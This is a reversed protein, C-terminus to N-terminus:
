TFKADNCGLIGRCFGIYIYTYIYIYGDGGLQASDRHTVDACLQSKLFKSLLSEFTDSSFIYVFIYVYVCIYIYVYICVCM